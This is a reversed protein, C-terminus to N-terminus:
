QSDLGNGYVHTQKLQIQQVIRQNDFNTKISRVESHSDIDEQLEEEFGFQADYVEM